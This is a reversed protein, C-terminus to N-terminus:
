GVRSKGRWVGNLVKVLEALPVGCRREFALKGIRHYANAGATHCDRCLPVCSYDSPKQSMGGDSGTHAAEMQRISGCALCPLSRIWVLYQANRAPGRLKIRRPKEEIKEGLVMWVIARMNLPM